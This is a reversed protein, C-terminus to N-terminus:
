SSFLGIWVCNLAHTFSFSFFRSFIAFLETGPISGLDRQGSLSDQWEGRRPVDSEFGAGVFVGRQRLRKDSWVGSSGVLVPQFLVSSSPKYSQARVKM